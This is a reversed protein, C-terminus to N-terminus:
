ALSARYRSLLRDLDLLTVPADHFTLAGEVVPRLSEGLNVPPALIASQPLEVVDVVQGVRLGTVTGASYGLLIDGPRSPTEAPDGTSVGLVRDLRVVSAIDGRVSIVGEIFDPCGPVFFPQTPPLIERVQGGRLAWLGDGLRFIVLQVQAENVDVVEGAARRRLELLEDIPDQSM